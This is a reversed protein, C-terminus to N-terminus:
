DRSRSLGIGSLIQTPASIRLGVVQMLAKRIGSWRIVRVLLFNSDSPFIEKIFSYKKLEAKVKTRETMLTEVYKNKTAENQLAQIAMQQSYGYQESKRPDALEVATILRDGLENPFRRELVLALPGDRFERFLRFFVKRAVVLVLGLVLLAFVTARFAFPLVQVWDVKFVKFM